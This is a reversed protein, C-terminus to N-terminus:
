GVKSQALEEPLSTPTRDHIKRLRRAVETTMRSNMVKDKMLIAAIITLAGFVISVYYVTQFSVFYGREAAESGAAIIEPTVGPILAIASSNGTMIAQALGLASDQSLGGEIAAAVIRSPVQDTM